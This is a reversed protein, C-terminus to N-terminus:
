RFSSRAGKNTKSPPPLTTKIEGLSHDAADYATYGTQRGSKDFHYVIRHLLRGNATLQREEALRGASDYRYDAKFRLLGDPGCIDSAAFRGADDLQYRIISRVKGAADKTTALAKHQPGDFEYITRTGDDNLSVTVRVADNAAGSTQAVTKTTAFISITGAFVLHLLLRSM